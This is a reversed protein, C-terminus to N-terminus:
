HLSPNWMASAKPYIFRRGLMRPDIVYRPNRHASRTAEDAWTDTQLLDDQVLESLGIVGGLSAPRAARQRDGLIAAM